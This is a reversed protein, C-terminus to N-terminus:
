REGSRVSSPESVVNQSAIPSASGCPKPAWHNRYVEFTGTWADGWGGIYGFGVVVDIEKQPLTSSPTWTIEHRRYDNGANPRFHGVLAIVEGYILLKEGNKLIAFRADRAHAEAGGIPLGRVVVANGRRFVGDPKSVGALTAVVEGPDSEVILDSKQGDEPRPFSVFKHPLGYGIVVAHQLSGSWGRPAVLMQGRFEVVHGRADPVDPLPRRERLWPRLLQFSEVESALRRRGPKWGAVRVVVPAVDGVGFQTTGAESKDIAVEATLDTGGRNIAASCGLFTLVTVIPGLRTYTHVNTTVM